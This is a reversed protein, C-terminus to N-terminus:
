SRDASYRGPGFAFLLLIGGVIAVNKMFNIQQAIAQAAPASWFNHFIPTIVVVFAALLLAVWRAQWGILVLLGGGLEVAITIAALLQPFPLGHSAISAVTHEFGGIKGFGSEIFLISLLIRGLLAAWDKQGKM